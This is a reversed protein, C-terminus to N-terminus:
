STSMFFSPVATTIMVRVVGVQGSPGIMMSWTSFVM